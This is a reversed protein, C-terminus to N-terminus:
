CNPSMHGDCHVILGALYLLKLVVESIPRVMHKTVLSLTTSSQARSALLSEGVFLGHLDKSRSM